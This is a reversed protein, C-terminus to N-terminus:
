IYVITFDDPIETKAIFYVGYYKGNLLRALALRIKPDDIIIFLKDIDKYADYLQGITDSIKNAEVTNSIRYEFSNTFELVTKDINLYVGQITRNSNKKHLFRGVYLQRVYLVTDDVFRHSYLCYSDMIAELIGSFDDLPINEQILAKIVHHIYSIPIQLDRMEELLVPHTIAVVDLMDKLDQRSFIKYLHREILLELHITLIDLPTLVQYGLELAKVTDELDLLVTETGYAPELIREGEIEKLVYPTKLAYFKDQHLLGEGVFIGGIYIMYKNQPLLNFNDKLSVNPVVCGLNNSLLNKMRYVNDKLFVKRDENIFSPCGSNIVPILQSGVEIMIPEVKNLERYKEKFHFDREM